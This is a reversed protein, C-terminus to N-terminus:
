FKLTLYRFKNRGREEAVTVVLPEDWMQPEGLVNFTQRLAQAIGKSTAHYAVGDSDILTIRVTDEVLGTADNAIRVGQLVVDKISIQNNVQDALPHSNNIAQLMKLKDARTSLSLSTYFGAQETIESITQASSPGQTAPVVVATSDSM